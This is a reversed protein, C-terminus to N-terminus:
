PLVMYESSLLPQSAINGRGQRSGVTIAAFAVGALLALMPVMPSTPQKVFSESLFTDAIPADRGGVAAVPADMVNSVALPASIRDVKQEYESDADALSVTQFVGATPADTEVAAAIPADTEVAAAIPANTVKAVAVQANIRDVKQQYESDVDALSVNQLSIPVFRRINAKTEERWANLEGTSSADSADRPGWYQRHADVMSFLEGSCNAVAITGNTQNNLRALNTLIVNRLNDRGWHQFPPPTFAQLVATQHTYLSCLEEVNHAASANNQWLDTTNFMVNRWATTYQVSYNNGYIRVYYDWPHSHNQRYQNSYQQWDLKGGSFNGQPVFEQWDFGDDNSATKSPVFPHWNNQGSNSNGGDVFQHWDYQQNNSSENGPMHQHWNYQSSVYGQGDVTTQHSQSGGEFQQYNFQSVAMAVCGVSITQRMRAM